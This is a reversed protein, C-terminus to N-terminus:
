TSNRCTPNQVAGLLVGSFPSAGRCDMLQDSPEVLHAACSSFPILKSVGKLTGVEGSLGGQHGPAGTQNLLPIPNPLADQVKQSDLITERCNLPELSLARIHIHGIREARGHQKLHSLKAM